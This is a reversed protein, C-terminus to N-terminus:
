RGYDESRWPYAVIVAFAGLGITIRALETTVGYADMALPRWVSWGGGGPWGPLLTATLRALAPSLVRLVAPPLPVTTALALAACSSARRTTARSSSCSATPRARSCCPM